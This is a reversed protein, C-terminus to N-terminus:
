SNMEGCPWRQGQLREKSTEYQEDNEGMGLHPWMEKQGDRWMAMDGGQRHSTALVLDYALCEVFSLCFQLCFILYSINGLPKQLYPKTGKADELHAGNKKMYGVPHLDLSEWKTWYDYRLFPCFVQM